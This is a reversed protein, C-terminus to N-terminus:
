STFGLGGLRGRGPKRNGMREHSDMNQHLPTPSHIEKTQTLNEWMMQGEQRPENSGTGGAGGGAGGGRGWAGEM